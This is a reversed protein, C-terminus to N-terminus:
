PVKLSLQRLLLDTMDFRNLIAFLVAICVTIRALNAAIESRRPTAPPDASPGFIGARVTTRAL